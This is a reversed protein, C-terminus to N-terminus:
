FLNRQGPAHTRAQQWYRKAVAGKTFLALHYLLIGGDTKIGQMEHFETPLYGLDEMKKSLEKCVFDGLNPDSALSAKVAEWRQRWDNSGLLLDIKTSVDKTYNHPNRGADMRSALLCLFDMRRNRALAQLTQFRINLKYPDVFCLTLARNPVEKGIQQLKQNCDGEIFRVDANPFNRRVRERLASITEPNEECFIYRDFPVDVSLAILPSGLLIQNTGELRSQGTGAYLDLYVLSDWKGKMGTTFQHAYLRFFAYKDPSWSGVGEENMLLGDDSGYLTENRM